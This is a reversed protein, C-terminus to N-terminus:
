EEMPTLTIKVRKPESEWTVEPFLRHDILYSLRGHGNWEKRKDYRKPKVSYVRLGLDRPGNYGRAVWGDIVQEHTDPLFELESEYYMKEDIGSTSIDRYMSETALTVEIIEGTAKIKAKM